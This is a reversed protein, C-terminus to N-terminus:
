ADPDSETDLVLPRFCDKRGIMSDRALCAIMAITIGNWLGQNRKSFGVEVQYSVYANNEKAADITLVMISSNLIFLGYIVPPTRTFQPAPPTAMQADAGDKSPASSDKEVSSSRDSGNPSGLRDVDARWFARQVQALSHLKLQMYATIEDSSLSTDVIETIINPVIDLAEYGGDKAAWQIYQDVEKKILQPIKNKQGTQSYGRIIATLEILRILAKTAIISTLRTAEKPRKYAL